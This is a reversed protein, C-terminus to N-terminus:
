VRQRSTTTNVVKRIYANDLFFLISPPIASISLIAGKTMLATLEKYHIDGPAHQPRCGLLPAYWVVGIFRGAGRFQSLLLVVLSLTLM